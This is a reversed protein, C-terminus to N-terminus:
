TIVSFATIESATGSTSPIAILRAKQRLKPFRFEVLDQFKTEPHEYYVWMIKAAD